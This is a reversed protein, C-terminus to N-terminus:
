VVATTKLPVGPADVYVFISGAALSNDKAFILEDGELLDAVGSYFNKSSFVTFNPQFEVNDLLLSLALGRKRTTSIQCGTGGDTWTSLFQVTCARPITISVSSEGSVTNVRFVLQDNVTATAM